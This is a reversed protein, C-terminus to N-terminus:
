LREISYALIDVLDADAARSLQVRMDAPRARHKSIDKISRQSIGSERGLGIEAQLRRRAQEADQDRRV